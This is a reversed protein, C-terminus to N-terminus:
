LFLLSCFLCFDQDVHLKYDLPLSLLYFLLLNCRTNPPSRHQGGKVETEDDAFYAFPWVGANRGELEEISKWIFNKGRKM